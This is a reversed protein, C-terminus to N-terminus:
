ADNAIWLDPASAVGARQMTERLDDSGLFTRAGDVDDTSMTITVMNGDDADRLLATDTLGHERRTSGHEDFAVKWADYDDVRHRIFVTSM